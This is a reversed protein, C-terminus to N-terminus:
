KRRRCREIAADLLSRDIRYDAPLRAVIDSFVILGREHARELVGLLGIVSLGRLSAARRGDGDDILLLNAKLELALSIAAEEGADLKAIREVKAPPQVVLWVPRSALFVKVEIPTTARNLEEEVKTPMFVTGFLSPLVEVCRLRILYNIPSSDSVVLM